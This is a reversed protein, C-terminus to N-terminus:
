HFIMDQVQQATREVQAAHTNPRDRAEAAQKSTYAIVGVGALMAVAILILVAKRGRWDM